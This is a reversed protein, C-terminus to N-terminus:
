MSLGRPKDPPRSPSFPLFIAQISVVISVMRVRIAEIRATYILGAANDAAFM